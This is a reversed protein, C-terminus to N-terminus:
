EAYYFDGYLHGTFVERRNKCKADSLIRRLGKDRCLFRRSRLRILSLFRPARGVSRPLLSLIIKGIHSLPTRQHVLHTRPSRLRITTWKQCHVFSISNIAVKNCLKKHTLLYPPFKNDSGHFIPVHPPRGFHWRLSNAAGM